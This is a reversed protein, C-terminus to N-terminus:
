RFSCLQGLVWAIDCRPVLSNGTVNHYPTDPLNGLLDSMARIYAAQGKVDGSAPLNLARVAANVAANAPASARVGRFINSSSAGRGLGRPLDPLSMLDRLAGGAPVSASPLDQFLGATINPSGVVPRASLM